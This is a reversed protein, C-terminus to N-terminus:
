EERNSQSCVPEVNKDLVHGVRLKVSKANAAKTNQERGSGFRVQNKRAQVPAPSRVALSTSPNSCPSRCECTGWSTM